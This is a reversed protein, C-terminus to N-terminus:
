INKEKLCIIKKFLASAELLNNMMRNDDINKLFYDIQKKYSEDIGEKFLRFSRNKGRYFEIKNNILDACISEKETDIKIAREKHMSLFDLHLNVYTEETKIVADLFDEADVAIDSVKGFTGKISKVRGFLYGIYDFEHSLELIVGGGKRKSASYSRIHNKGPRWNPLYSSAYVSAHYIKKSHKLYNKLYKIVPHFRLVYAVYSVLNKRSIEKLLTEMGKVSHGIPKEIFLKINLKACRIATDIHLFTPNTIFAIDPKIRKVEGWTFVEKIKLRNNKAGKNSRYAFLEHKFNNVLIEAHRSGISGLGFFIIKM